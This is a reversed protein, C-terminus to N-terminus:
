YIGPILRRTRASYDAYDAGFARNLAAEEVHIRYLLAAIPFVLVIVLSEWNRLNIGIAAFIILMGSYSPHRVYRFIGTRQVKQDKHIAVNISFSKGLTLIATWRIALGIILVVFSVPLLWQGYHFRASNFMNPPHTVALRVAASISGFIVVWLLLLSGRDNVTGTSRRTRTIIAVLTESGVWIWSIVMYLTQWLKLAPM